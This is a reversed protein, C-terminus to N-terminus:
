KKKNFFYYALAAIIIVAILVWLWTMGKGEGVPTVEQQEETVGRAGEEEKVIKAAGEEIKKITVDAVGNVISNLTVSMDNTGDGNVDVNKTEKANLTVTVPTSEIKLTASTGTVEVFTVTHKTVGDFSFSKVRGQQAKLTGENATTFDIDFSVVAAGGAGGGAGGSVGGVASVTFGTTADTTKGGVDYNGIVDYVVCKVVYDGLENIDTNKFTRTASSGTIDSSDGVKDTYTIDSGPKDLTWVYKYIGSLADSASCTYKVGVSDSQTIGANETVRELTIGSPNPAESDLKYSYPGATTTYNGNLNDFSINNIVIVFEITNGSTNAGAGLSLSYLSTYAPDQLNADTETASVNNLQTINVIVSDYNEIVGGMTGNVNVSGSNVSLGGTGTVNYYLEVIGSSGGVYENDSVARPGGSVEFAITTESGLYETGDLTTRINGYQDSVNIAKIYPMTDNTLISFPVTNVGNHIASTDNITVRNNFTDNVYIGFAVTQNGAFTTATKAPITWSCQVPHTIGAYNQGLPGVTCSSASIITANISTLDAYLESKESAYDNEADHSGNYYLQLYSNTIPSLEYFTARVTLDSNGDLYTYYGDNTASNNVGSFSGNQYTMNGDSINLEVLRPALGDIYTTVTTSNTSIVATEDVTINWVENDEINSTATVNFRLMITNNDSGLAATNSNNVCNLITATSNTCDWNGIGGSPTITVNGFTTNGSDCDSGTASTCAASASDDAYTWGIFTYNGGWSVNIVNINTGNALGYAVTLNVTVVEGGKTTNVDNYNDGYIAISVNGLMDDSDTSNVVGKTIGIVGILVLVGILISVGIKKNMNVGRTLKKTINM